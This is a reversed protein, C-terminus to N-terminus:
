RTGMRVAGDLRLVSGNLMPNEVIHQALAAFEDPKGLRPPFPIQSALQRVSREPLQRMMPTDFVGPSIAVVRIAHKALERAIPLTMAAVGGKSAAYAALGLQGESAAVSAVNIIVGREGEDNPEADCMAAAALRVVNFTGVLNVQILQNFLDLDHPGDRELIRSVRLIGACNVVGHLSGFADRTIRIATAVSEADTVDGAVFRAAPGLTELLPRGKEEDLDVALVNAGAGVFRHATAAGLGSAAGTILFTHKDLQM